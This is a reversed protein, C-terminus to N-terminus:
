RTALQRALGDRLGDYVHRVHPRNRQLRPMALRVLVPTLPLRKSSTQFRLGRRSPPDGAASTALAQRCCYDEEQQAAGGYLGARM